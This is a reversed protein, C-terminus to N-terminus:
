TSTVLCPMSPKTIDPGVCPLHLQWANTPDHEWQWANTPAHYLWPRCSQDVYRRWLVALPVWGRGAGVKSSSVFVYVPWSCMVDGAEPADIFVEVEEGAELSCYGDAEAEYSCCAVAECLVHRPPPNQWRRAKTAAVTAGDAVDADDDITSLTENAPTADLSTLTSSEEPESANAPNGQGKANDKGKDKDTNMSVDESSEELGGGDNLNNRNDEAEALAGEGTKELHEALMMSEVFLQAVNLHEAPMMCNLTSTLAQVPNAVFDHAVATFM